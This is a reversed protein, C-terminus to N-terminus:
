IRFQSSAFLNFLLYLIEEVTPSFVGKVFIIGKLNRKPDADHLINKLGIKLTWIRMTVNQSLHINAFLTIVSRFISILVQITTRSPTPAVLVLESNM